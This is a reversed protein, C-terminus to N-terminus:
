EEEKNPVSKLIEVSIIRTEDSEVIKFLYNEVQIEEGQEPFGKKIELLLGALSDSDGRAEDFTNTDIDLIRCVDIILTQGEFRYHNEGLKEFTIEDADDDFEDKIEGIVEELIDEMTVIGATGGYEDVVVAIHIRDKKFKELLSDIRQTEPIYYPERISEQWKFSGKPKNLFYLLDKVYIVGKINDLNDEYVPIRSYNSQTALTLLEEFTDEIDISTVNVRATMIQKASVNGFQIISKLMDKEQKGENGQVTLEIAQGIDQISVTNDQRSRKELRKEIYSTSSVLISGLPRFIQRLILMPRSMFRSLSLNNVNAYIKPSVEGFLVLFFTVAGVEIIFKTTSNLSENPIVEDLAFSSLIIIGINIFNNAILITALLLGPKELLRAIRKDSAKSSKGLQQIVRQSLSFYAVESGSIMASCLLLILVAVFATIITYISAPSSLLIIEVQRFYEDIELTKKLKIILFSYFITM